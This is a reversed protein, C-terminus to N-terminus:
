YFGALFDALQYISFKLALLSFLLLYVLVAVSSVAIKRRKNRLQLFLISCSNTSVSFHATSFGQKGSIAFGGGGSIKLVNIAIKVNSSVKL